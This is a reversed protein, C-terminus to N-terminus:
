IVILGGQNRFRAFARIFTFETSHLDWAQMRLTAIKFFGLLMFRFLDGGIKLPEVVGTKTNSSTTVQNKAVSLLQNMMDVVVVVKKQGLLPAFSSV